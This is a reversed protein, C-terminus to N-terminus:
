TDEGQSMGDRAKEPLPQDDPRTVVDPDVVRGGQEDHVAARFGGRLAGSAVEGSSNMVLLAVQHHSELGQLNHVRDLSSAVAELPTAGNRMAEIAVFSACTGSILEGTGTATV